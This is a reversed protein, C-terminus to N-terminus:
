VTRRKIEIMASFDPNVLLQNSWTKPVVGDKLRIDYNQLIEIMIAKIEYVAFFRGPCAQSGHGFNLSEEGTLVAQHKHGRGPQDRLRSFRFGDFVGPGPNDTNANYAEDLM